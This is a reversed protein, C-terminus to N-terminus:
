HRSTLRTGKRDLARLGGADGLYNEVTATEQEVAAHLSEGSGRAFASQLKLQSVFLVLAGFCGSRGRVGALRGFRCRSRCPTTSPFLSDTRTATPPRRTM